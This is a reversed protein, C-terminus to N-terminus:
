RVLWGGSSELNEMNRPAQRKIDKTACDTPYTIQEVVIVLYIKTLDKM